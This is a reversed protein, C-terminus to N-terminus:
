RRLLPYNICMTRWLVSLWWILDWSDGHCGKSIKESVKLLKWSGYIVVTALEMLVDKVALWGM